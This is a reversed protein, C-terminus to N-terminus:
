SSRSRLAFVGIMEDGQALLLSLYSADKIENGAGFPHVLLRDENGAGFPHVLLPFNLLNM